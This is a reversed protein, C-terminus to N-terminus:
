GLKEEAKPSPISQLLTEATACDTLREKGDEAKLKLQNCNTVTQSGEKVLRNKLVKWYNRAGALDPQETLVRVVDGVSFWWTETAEDYVRRIPQDEFIATHNPM